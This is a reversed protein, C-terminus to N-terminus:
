MRASLAGMTEIALQRGIDSPGPEPATARVFGGSPGAVYGMRQAPPRAGTSLTVLTKGSRVNRGIVRYSVGDPKRPDDLQVVELVIDAKGLIAATEVRQINSTAGAGKAYGTTRMISTRDVLNAGASNLMGSFAAEIDFDVAESYASDRRNDTLRDAGTRIDTSTRSSSVSDVGAASVGYGSIAAGRTSSTADTQSDIHAYNEYKTGVEDTFERNWFVVIRPSGARAYASRFRARAAIAPDAPPPPPTLTEPQGDRYPLGSQGAVPPQGDRYQAVAMSAGATAAMVAILSTIRRILM